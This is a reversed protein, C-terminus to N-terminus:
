VRKERHALLPTQFLSKSINAASASLSYAIISLVITRAWWCLAPAWFFVAFLLRDPAASASQAGFDVGHDIGQSIRESELKRGALGVIQIAGVRQQRLHCGRHEHGVHGKVGILANYLGQSGCSFGEDDWGSAIAFDLAPEVPMGVPGAMEDLVEETLELLKAGEGGTVVLGGSIKEGANM